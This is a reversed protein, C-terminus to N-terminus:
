WGFKVRLEDARGKALPISSECADNLTLNFSNRTYREVKSVKQVNVIYSRHCRFFGFRVLENELDDMTLTTQYLNGRVSVYNAKNMSEVFDIDKPDLLLTASETKAPIKCVRVEDGLFVDGMKAADDSGDDEAVEAAIFRGDEYWFASGPMLLAERLPEATTIFITGHEVREAMWTLVARRAQAGLDFLPRECFCVEPEALSVRAIDVLTREAKPCDQLKRKAHEVLGFHAIAKEVAARGRGAIRAFMMLYSRVSEREFGLEDCLMFACRRQGYRQRVVERVQESVATSCEIHIGRSEEAALLSEVSDYEKM